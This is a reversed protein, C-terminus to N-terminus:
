LCGPQIREPMIGLKLWWISLRTLGGVSLGAFPQGNDTRIADPLGYEIFVQRFGEMTEKLKPGDLGKCMFLFRSYNDTITLPYCYPEGVRFQGKYDASWVRNSENCELFPESHAPVRKKYKRPKVLGHKKLIEGITSSAPWEKNPENLLLWDRIKEPGWKPYRHKLSILREQKEYATANPHNHRAHSLAQVATEGEEKFRNILKYGTKRSIEYRRCLDIFSYEGKLWDGIFKIKERREDTAQWTMPLV